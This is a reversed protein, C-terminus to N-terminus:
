LFWESDRIMILWDRHETELFNECLLLTALIQKWNEEISNQYGDLQKNLKELASYKAFYLAASKSVQFTSSYTKIVYGAVPLTVALGILTIGLIHALEGKGWIDIIFHLTVAFVSAFFLWTPIKEIRKHQAKFFEHRQHYYDRQYLLRKKRYYDLFERKSDTSYDCVDFLDPPEMSPTNVWEEISDTNNGETSFIRAYAGKLFHELCELATREKMVEDRIKKQANVERTVSTKLDDFREKNWFRRDLLSKFKLLRCREAMHRNFLWLNQHSRYFGAIVAVASFIVAVIEIFRFLEVVDIDFYPIKLEFALSLFCFQIIAFFIAVFGLGIAWKAIQRHKNQLIRATKDVDRYFPLLQDNLVYIGKLLPEQTIVINYEFEKGQPIMDIMDYDVDGQRPLTLIIDKLDAQVNNVEL